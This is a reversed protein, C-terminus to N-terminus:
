RLYLMFHLASTNIFEKKRLMTKLMLYFFYFKYSETKDTEHLM